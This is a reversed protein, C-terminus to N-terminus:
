RDDGVNEVNKAGEEDEARGFVLCPFVINGNDLAMPSAAGRIENGIRALIRSGTYVYGAHINPENIQVVLPMSDPYSLTSVQPPPSSAPPPPPQPTACCMSGCVTEITLPGSWSAFLTPNVAALQDGTLACVTSLQYASGFYTARSAALHCDERTDSPCTASGAVFMASLVLWRPHM